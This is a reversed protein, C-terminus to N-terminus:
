QSLNTTIDRAAKAILVDLKRSELDSELQRDWRDNVYAQLYAALERVENDPLKRIAAKIENLTVM